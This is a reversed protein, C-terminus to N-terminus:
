SLGGENRNDFTEIHDSLQLSCLAIQRESSNAIWAERESNEGRPPGLIDIRLLSSLFIQYPSVCFYFLFKIELLFCPAHDWPGLILGM